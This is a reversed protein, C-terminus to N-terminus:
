LLPSICNWCVSQLGFKSDYFEFRNTIGEHKQGLREKFYLDWTNNSSGKGGYEIKDGEQM